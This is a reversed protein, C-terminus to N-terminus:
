DHGMVFDDRECANVATIEMRPPQDETFALSQNLHTRHSIIRLKSVCVTCCIHPICLWVSLCVLVVIFPSSKMEVPPLTTRSLLLLLLEGQTTQWSLGGIFMKSFPLFLLQQLDGLYYYCVRVQVCVCVEMSSPLVCPPLLLSPLLHPLIYVCLSHMHTLIADIFYSSLMPWTPSTVLRGTPGNYDGLPPISLSPSISLCMSVPPTLVFLSLSLSSRGSLISSFNCHPMRSSFLSLYVFSPFLRFAATRRQRRWGM